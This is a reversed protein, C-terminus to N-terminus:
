TTTGRVLRVAGREKLRQLSSAGAEGASLPVSGRSALTVTRLGLDVQIPGGSANVLLLAPSGAGCVVRAPQESYPDDLAASGLFGLVRAADRRGNGERGPQVEIRSGPGAKKSALVVRGDRTVAAVGKAKADFSHAVDRASLSGKPFRIRRKTKDVVVVLEAGPPMAFPEAHSGVVRAARMGSGPFRRSSGSIGLARAASSAPAITLSANGGRVSSEIVLRGDEESAELGDTREIVAALEATTARRIDKFDSAVFVITRWPGDNVSIELTDGHDLAYTSM